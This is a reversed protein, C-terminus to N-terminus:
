ALDDQEALQEDLKRLLLEAHRRDHLQEDVDDAEVVGDLLEEQDPGPQPVREDADLAEGLEVEGALEHERHPEAVVRREHERRAAEVRRELVHRAPHRGGELAQGHREADARELDPVLRVERDRAVADLAAALDLHGGVDVHGRDLPMEREVGQEVERRPEVEDDCSSNWTASSASPSSKADTVTRMDSSPGPSHRAM